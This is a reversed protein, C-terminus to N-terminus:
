DNIFYVANVIIVLMGYDGLASYCEDASWYSTGLLIMVFLVGCVYSWRYYMVVELEPWQFMRWALVLFALNVLNDALNQMRKWEEFAKERTMGSKIFHQTWFRTKGQRYLMIAVGIKGVVTTFLATGIFYNESVQPEMGVDVSPHHNPYVMITRYVAIIGLVGGCVITTSVFLVLIIVMMWDSSRYPDFNNIIFINERHTSKTKEFEVGYTRQIHPDEVYGLFFMQMLHSFMTLALVQFSGAIMSSGYMWAYGVTYM